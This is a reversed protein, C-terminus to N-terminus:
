TNELLLKTRHRCTSYFEDRSNLTAGEPRFMIYYKEKLCAQCSRTTPNFGRGRAIIKWTINYGIDRDKLDWVYKSLCTSSRQSRHRQDYSHGYYRQKFTGATVGTYIETESNDLRTVKAEYVVTRYSIKVTNRNFIKHLPNDKPFYTSILKLFKAGIKTEVNASFPPNFYIIKRGRNRKRNSPNTEPEFQLKHVYGSAALAEQYPPAAANFVAENSSISSLRKNVAAPINKLISVPHNSGKDIYQIKNNPKMFPKYEGSNLDLTVDLFNVVKQNAEITISLNNDKFIKCIEKKKMEIQRPRLSCATLADDRYLGQNLNLHKLLNLMYLGVLECTEAGDFSGMGVDCNSQGKKCWPQNKDFLFTKKSHLIIRRDEQSIHVYNSAWDLTKHILTETISAYFNDIDYQIFSCRQKNEIKTFWDVVSKTNQWQNLKTKERIIANFNALKQKTIRGLETKTPNLLRCSPNNNFNPKHDKLTIFAQKATTSYVRDEIDLETVIEKDVKTV